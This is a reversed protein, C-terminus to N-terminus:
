ITIGLIVLTVTSLSIESGAISNNRVVVQLADDYRLVTAPSEEIAAIALRRIPLMFQAAGERRPLACLAKAIKGTRVTTSASDPSLAFPM